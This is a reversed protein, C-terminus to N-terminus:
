GMCDEGCRGGERVSCGEGKEKGGDWEWERGGVEVGGEGVGVGM